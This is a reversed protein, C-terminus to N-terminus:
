TEKGLWRNLTEVRLPHSAACSRTRAAHHRFKEKYSNRRPDPKVAQEYRWACTYALYFHAYCNDPKLALAQEFADAAATCDKKCYCVYGKFNYGFADGPARKLFADLMKLATDYQYHANVHAIALYKYPRADDPNMARAKDLLAMAKRSMSAVTYLGGLTMVTDFDDPNNQYRVEQELIRNALAADEEITYRDERELPIDQGRFAPADMLLGM